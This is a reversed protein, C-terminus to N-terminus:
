FPLDESFLLELESVIKAAEVRKYGVFHNHWNRLRDNIKAKLPEQATFSLSEVYKRMAIRKIRNRSETTIFQIMPDLWKAVDETLFFIEVGEIYKVDLEDMDSKMAAIIHELVMPLHQTAIYKCDSSRFFSKDYTKVEYESGERLVSVYNAAAKSKLLDTSQLLATRFCQSIRNLLESQEFDSGFELAPTSDIKFYHKVVLDLVLRENEIAPLESLLHPLIALTAPDREIKSLLQKATLGYTMRRKTAIEEAIMSILSHAISASSSTAKDQLRVVRGPHILNRYSRIVSCLDASRQSLLNESKCATIADSLELKLPDKGSSAQYDISVLADVLLAEVISGALVMVSKYLNKELCAELEKYDSELELRFNDHSIFDFNIM